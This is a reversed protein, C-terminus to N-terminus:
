KLRGERATNPQPAPWGIMRITPTNSFVGVGSYGKKDACSWYAYYNKLKLIETPIQDEQLKTEQICFFDANLHKFKTLFDKKYVARLGNVNWSIFKM